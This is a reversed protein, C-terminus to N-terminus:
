VFLQALPIKLDPFLAPEFTDEAALSATLVYRGNELTFAQLGEAEAEIIWYHSVGFDAYINFKRFRDNRATSPSLIEVVLDPPAVVCAGNEREIRENAFREHRVFMLDPIYCKTESVYLDVPSLYIHDENRGQLWLELIFLLRRIILQHKLTPSGMEALEGDYIERRRGDEWGELDSYTWQKEQVSSATTEAVM